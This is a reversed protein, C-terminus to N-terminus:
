PTFRGYGGRYFLLPGGEHAVGLDTVEGLVVTHDGGSHSDHVSCDVFATAGELLPSRNASPHWGVGTFKDDSKAAFSRCLAEQDEGLVNVCFVGTALVRALTSSDNAACFLVMPPDLSVSCFSGVAFGAPGNDDMTTVVCVGTPFHGLVQRFTATDLEAV